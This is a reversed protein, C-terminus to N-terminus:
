KIQEKKVNQKITEYQWAWNSVIWLTEMKYRIDRTDVTYNGAVISKVPYPEDINWTLMKNVLKSLNLKSLDNLWNDTHSFNWTKTDIYDKSINIWPIIFSSTQFDSILRDTISKPFEDFWSKRFYKLINEEQKKNEIKTKVLDKLESNYDQIIETEKKQLAKQTKQIKDNITLFNSKLEEITKINKFSSIDDRTILFETPLGLDIFSNELKSFLSNSELKSSFNSTILYINNELNPKNWSELLNTRLNSFEDSFININTAWEKLKDVRDINAWMIKEIEVRNIKEEFWYKSGILKHKLSANNWKLNFDFMAWSKTEIENHIEDSSFAWKIEIKEIDNFFPELTSDVWILKERFKQYEETNTWWLDKAISQIVWDSKLIDIIKNFEPLMKEKANKIDDATVWEWPAIKYKEAKEILNLIQTASSNSNNLSSLSGKITDLKNSLDNYASQTEAKEEAIIKEQNLHKNDEIEQKKNEKAILNDNYKTEAKELAILINGKKDELNEKDRQLNTLLDWNANDGKEFETNIKEELDDIQAQIFLFEKAEKPNNLLWNLTDENQKLLIERYKNEVDEWIDNDEYFRNIKEFTNSLKINNESLKQEKFSSPKIWWAKEIDNSKFIDTM